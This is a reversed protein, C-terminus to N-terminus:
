MKCCFTRHFYFRMKPVSFTPMNGDKETYPEAVKLNWCGGGWAVMMGRGLLLLCGKVTGSVGEAWSSASFGFVGAVLLTFSSSSESESSSNWEACCDGAVTPKL